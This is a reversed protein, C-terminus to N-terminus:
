MMFLKGQHCGTNSATTDFSLCKIRDKLGCEVIRDWVVTCTSEGALYTFFSTLHQLIAIHLNFNSFILVKRGKGDPAVSIGLPREGSVGSVNVPVHEVVEGGQRVGMKVKKGDFHLTLCDDYEDFMVKYTASVRVDARIRGITSLSITIDEVNGGGILLIDYLLQLFAEDSVRNRDAWPCLKRIWDKDEFNLTISTKRKSKPEPPSFSPDNSEGMEICTSQCDVHSDPVDDWSTCADFAQSLSCVVYKYAPPYSVFFLDKIL